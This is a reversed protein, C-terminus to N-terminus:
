RPWIPESRMRPRAAAGPRAANMIPKVHMHIKPTCPMSVPVAEISKPPVFPAAVTAPISSPTCYRAEPRVPKRSPCKRSLNPQPAQVQIIM